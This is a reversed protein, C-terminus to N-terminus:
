EEVEKLYIYAADDAGLRVGQEGEIEESSKDIQFIDYGNKENGHQPKCVRYICDGYDKYKKGGTVIGKSNVRQASGTKVNGEADVLFLGTADTDRNAIEPIYVLEYRETSASGVALGQYYLKGDYVGTVGRGLFNRDDSKESFYYYFNEKGEGNNKIRPGTVMAANDSFDYFGNPFRRLVSNQDKMLLFLGDIRAGNNECFYYRGDEAKFVFGVYDDADEGSSLTGNFAYTGINEEEVKQPRLYDAVIADNLRGAELIWDDQNRRWAGYRCYTVIYGNKGCYFSRDDESEDKGPPKANIWCSKSVKGSGPDCYLYYQPNHAYEGEEYGNGFDGGQAEETEDTVEVYKKVGDSDPNHGEEYVWGRLRRGNEDFCYENGEYQLKKNRVVNGQRDFYYWNVEENGDETPGSFVQFYPSDPAYAPMWQERCMRGTTDCYYVTDDMTGSRYVEADDGISDGSSVWGTLMRGEGHFFYISGDIQQRGKVAQGDRSFYQWVNGESEYSWGAEPLVQNVEGYVCVPCLLLICGAAAMAIRIKQRKM